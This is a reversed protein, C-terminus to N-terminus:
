DIPLLALTINCRFQLRNVRLLYHSSVCGLDTSSAVYHKCNM